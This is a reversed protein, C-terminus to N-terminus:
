RRDFTQELDLERRDRRAIVVKRRLTDGGDALRWNEVLKAGDEGLTEIVYSQGEWGSVRDAAIEGVSVERHEGFRYEEVVARDFSVFLGHRTQTIKLRRGNEFFVRVLSDGNVRASVAEDDRLEWRGSLDVGEPVAAAYPVLVENAGCGALVIGLGVAYLTRRM